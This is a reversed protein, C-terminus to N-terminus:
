RSLTLAVHHVAEQAEQSGMIPYELADKEIHTALPPFDFFTGATARFLKIM